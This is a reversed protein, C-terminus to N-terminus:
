FLNITRRKRSLPMFLQCFLPSKQVEDIVITKKEPYLRLTDLLREPFASYSRFQQLDLLDIWLADPYHRKLWTSKGTGRPGFLFYSEKPPKFFRKIYAM